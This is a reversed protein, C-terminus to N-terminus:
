RDSPFLREDISGGRRGMLRAELMILVSFILVAVSAFAPVLMVFRMGLGDAVYSLLWPTAMAGAIGVSITGSYFGPHYSFRDDLREAILPYIPAQALGICIAAATAWFTSSTLSLVIYALMATFVSALLMRRHSVLPLVFQAIVRGLMLALFYSALSFIATKPNIGLIRILFLPLWGAMAWECAFQFFILLSFLVTAISRLDKLTDRATEDRHVRPPLMALSLRNRTFLLAFCAPAISLLGTEIRLSGVFYTAGCIVTAILAGGVFLAGARNASAAPERDFFPENIYFLAHTLAGAACGTLALGLERWVAQFPPACVALLLLALFAAM